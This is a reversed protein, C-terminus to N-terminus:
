NMWEYYENLPISWVLETDTGNTSKYVETLQFEGYPIIYYCNSSGDGAYVRYVDVWDPADKEPLVFYDGNIGLHEWGNVDSDSFYETFFSSFVDKESWMYVPDIAPEAPPEVITPVSNQVRYVIADIGEEITYKSNFDKWSGRRAVSELSTQCPYRGEEKLPTICGLEDRLVSARLKGDVDYYFSEVYFTVFVETPSDSTNNYALCVIYWSNDTAVVSKATLNTYLDPVKAYKEAVMQEAIEIAKAHKLATINESDVAQNETNTPDINHTDQQSINTQESAADSITPVTTETNEEPKSCSSFMLVFLLSLCLFWYKKM